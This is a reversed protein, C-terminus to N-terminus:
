NATAMQACRKQRRSLATEASCRRQPLQRADQHDQATISTLGRGCTTYIMKRIGPAFAFFPIVHEWANRWAQGIAPYRKGWEAELEELIALV